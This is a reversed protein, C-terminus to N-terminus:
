VYEARVDSRCPSRVGVIQRIWPGVTDYLINAVLRHGDVTLHVGDGRALAKKDGSILEETSCFPIGM